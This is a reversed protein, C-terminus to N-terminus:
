RFNQNIWWWLRYGLTRNGVFIKAKGGMGIKLPMETEDLPVRTIYQFNPQEYAAIMEVVPDPARSQVAQTSTQTPEFEERVISYDTEIPTSQIKSKYSNGPESFLKIKVDQDLQVFKVQHETLIIVFYWHSFDAVECFRQGRRASVNVHQDYLLPLSESERMEDSSSGSKEFPIEVVKGAISSKLTLKGAQEQLKDFSNKLKTLETYLSQTPQSKGQRQLMSARDFKNQADEYKLKADLLKLNLEINSLKALTQGPAVEDGPEVLCSELVGPENVWITEIQKPMVIANCRLYHPVPISLTLAILAVVCALVFFFRIKKVEHMRGPVSMYKYLKYGPMVVMGIMSFMAIGVGISELNYPELMITLFYIISFMVFWRYCFAAVTFMAFAYPRNTPMLQDDPLELGLWKRGLQTTLAKTSKQHLNPIELIDSLIYYGDFRLLPNGNFLVTSISSVLMIRLAIDQVFGPQVFWWVFTAITALIVEVYMGAAGIAARHWKNNLRWSDSVNCYLCPTWVLLMFGIEHCEGGLRKCSLGHGFEHVVKTGCLVLAFLYWQRPDFFAEFGPLMSEFSSWNMLVSLLAIVSLILTAIAAAKTFIWWTYPLMSNLIREPDFGKYRIALINALAGVREMLQSKAGRKFLEIGQGPTNSTVLGDQHFRTLLQQLDQRTIRKPAFKEHYDDQLQDITKTGDLERLLHFVHPPFQYYKQGLPEKVVWYEVGQYNMRDFTLDARVKMQVAPGQPPTPQLRGDHGDNAATARPNPPPIISM